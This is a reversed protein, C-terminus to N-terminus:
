VKESILKHYLLFIFSQIKFVEFTNIFGNKRLNRLIKVEEESRVLDRFGNAKLSKKLFEINVQKKIVENYNGIPKLINNVTSILVEKLVSTLEDMTLFLYDPLKYVIISLKEALKESSDDSFGKGIIIPKMKLIKSNVFAQRIDSVSIKGSKVEVSYKIGNKDEAILDVDSIKTNDLMIDRRYSIVKYGLLTLLWASLEENSLGKKM